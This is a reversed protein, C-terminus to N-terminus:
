NNINKEPRLCLLPINSGMIVKRATSGIILEKLLNEQQIMIILLDGAKDDAKDLLNKVMQDNNNGPDVVDAGVPINQETFFLKVKELVEQMKLWKEKSESRTAALVSIRADFLKSFKAALSIKQTTTKSLDLPLIINNCGSRHFKGKISLVPCPAERIIRMIIPGMTNKRTGIVIFKANEKRAVEIIHPVIKGREILFGTDIGEEKKIQTAIQKMKESLEDLDDTINAQSETETLKMSLIHLLVIRANHYRAINYSQELAIMSQENFDVPILITARPEEM